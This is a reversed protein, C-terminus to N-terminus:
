RAVFPKKTTTTTTGTVTTTSETGVGVVKGTQLDITRISRFTETTATRPPVNVLAVGGFGYSPDLGVALLARGELGEAVPRLARRGRNRISMSRRTGRDLFLGQLRGSTTSMNGM